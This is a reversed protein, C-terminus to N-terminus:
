CGDDRGRCVLFRHGKTPFTMQLPQLPGRSVAWHLGCACACVHVRVRESLSKRNM